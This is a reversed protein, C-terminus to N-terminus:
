LYKSKIIGYIEEHIDEISRLKDDKICEIINWNLKKALYLGSKVSNLLHNTDSEHIDKKDNNTIKNKRNEMMKLTYQTPVYLFFVENPKPLELDGFEREYIWNTFEDLKTYDDSNAIIKSGQHLLNSSVYRDLLIITKDDNYIKEIEEKYTIYRDVAYFLSAAKASIDNPNQSINGSLYEKVPGSSQSNYNPFSTKYITNGENTLREFLAKTQTEKGSGDTGEIVFIKKM